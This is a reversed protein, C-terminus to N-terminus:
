GSFGLALLRLLGLLLRQVCLARQAGDKALQGANQMRVALGVGLFGLAFGRQHALGVRGVLPAVQGGQELQLQLHFQGIRLSDGAHGVLLHRGQRAQELILHRRQLPFQLRQFHLRALLEAHGLVAADRGRRQRAVQQALALAQLLVDLHHLAVQRQRLLNRALTAATISGYVAMGFEQRTQMELAELEHQLTAVQDKLLRSLAAVKEDAMGAIARPDALEVQLQLKLLATLDRRKYAANAQSMLASKRKAEVPDTERDPHLVSALQRFITRLAGQADQTEQEAQQAKKSKPKRSARAAQREQLREQEAREQEDAEKMAARMLADMDGDLADDLPRGLVEEMQAKADRFDAQAKEGLGEDSYADHMENMAADGQIALTESLSIIIEIAYGRLAKTLAKGQLRQDLWLAMRKMAQAHKAQLAALARAHQPRHADAAARVQEIQLTLNEVRALLKNFRQQAPTLKGQADIKLVRLGSSPAPARAAQRLTEPPALDGFLDPQTKM